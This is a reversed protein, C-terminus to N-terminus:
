FTAWKILAQGHQNLIGRYKRSSYIEKKSDIIISGPNNERTSLSKLHQNWGYWLLIGKEFTETSNIASASPIL